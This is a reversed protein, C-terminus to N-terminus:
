VKVGIVTVDDIQMSNGKWDNYIGELLEKQEIMPLHSNNSLLEMLQLKQFKKGNPGGFQDMFGDSAMFLIDNKELQISTHSFPRMFEFRGIPMRDPKLEILGKLSSVRDNEIEIRSNLSAVWCPINAGAYELQLTTTNLICLGIDMGDFLIEDSDSSLSSVVYNRLSDLVEAANTVEEKRVIENLFSVGLISMFAGPVGHGTCDTVCFVLLDRIKTVWYFDGSVISKPIYLIFHDRFANKLLSHPPLVANQIRQAYLISDTIDKNKSSLISRQEEIEESKEQLEWALNALSNRQEEIEHQQQVIERNQDLLKENQKTLKESSKKIEQFAKELMENKESIIKNASNKIQYARYGFFALVMFSIFVFGLGYIAFRQRKLTESRNTLELDKIVITQLYNLSDAYNKREYEYRAQQRMTERYNEENAISDRMKIEETFFTYGLKFDGQKTYIEKLLRASREINQPFGLEQSMQYAERAYALSKYLNGQKLFANGLYYLSFAIGRKDGIEKRIGLAKNYLDIAKELENQNEFVTGMSTLSIAEGKKDGVVIKLELSKKYYELAESIKGQHEFLVGINNLTTAQGYIDGIQERIELSRNYFDLAQSLDGQLRYIVAINNLSSAVGKKNNIEESIKISQTYYDLASIVNGERRLLVGISNLTSALLRKAQISTNLDTNSEIFEEALAKSKRYFDM